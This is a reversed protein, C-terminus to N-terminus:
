SIEIYVVSCFVLVFSLLGTQDIGAAACVALGLPVITVAVAELASAVTM